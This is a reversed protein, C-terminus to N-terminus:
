KEEEHKQRRKVSKRIKKLENRKWDSKDILSDFSYLLQPLILMVLIISTLTGIGLTKGLSSIVANSSLHGIVFGAVTLITGSTVITAFCQDLTNVVVKKRDPETKRLEVYRNTIM